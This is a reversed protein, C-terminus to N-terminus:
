GDGKSTTGIAVAARIQADVCFDTRNKPWRLRNLTARNERKQEPRMRPANSINASPARDRPRRIMASAHPHDDSARWLQRAM